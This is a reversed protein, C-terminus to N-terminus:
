FQFVFFTGSNCKEGNLARLVNYTVTVLVMLFYMLFDRLFCARMHFLLTMAKPLHPQLFFLFTTAMSFPNTCSFACVLDWTKFSESVSFCVHQRYRIIPLVISFNCNSSTQRHMPLAAPSPSMKHEM